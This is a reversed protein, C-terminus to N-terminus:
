SGCRYQLPFLDTTEAFFNYQLKIPFIAFCIREFKTIEKERGKGRERRIDTERNEEEKFCVRM